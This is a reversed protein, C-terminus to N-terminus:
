TSTDRLEKKKEKKAPFPGRQRRFPVCVTKALLLILQVSSVTEECLNSSLKTDIRLSHKYTWYIVDRQIRAM